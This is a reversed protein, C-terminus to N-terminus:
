SLQEITCALCPKEQQKDRHDACLNNALSHAAKIRLIALERELTENRKEMDIARETAADARRIEHGLAEELEAIRNSGTPDIHNAVSALGLSEALTAMRTKREDTM